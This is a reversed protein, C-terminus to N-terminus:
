LNDMALLPVTLTDLSAESDDPKTDKPHELAKPTRLTKVRALKSYAGTTEIPLSKTMVVTESANMSRARSGAGTTTVVVDAGGIPYFMCTVLCHEGDVPMDAEKALEEPIVKTIVYWVLGVVLALLIFANVFFCKDSVDQQNDNDDLRSLISIELILLSVLFYSALTFQDLFTLYGLTPLCNGVVLTYATITLLMTFANGLRDAHAKVDLSFISLSLVLIVLLVGLIRALYATSTRQMKAAVHVQAMHPHRQAHVEASGLLDWEQNEVYALGKSSDLEDLNEESEEDRHTVLRYTLHGSIADPDGHHGAGHFTLICSSPERM